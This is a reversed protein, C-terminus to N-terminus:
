LSNYIVFLIAQLIQLIINTNRTVKRVYIISYKISDKMPGKGIWIIKVEETFKFLKWKKLLNSYNERYQRVKWVLSDEHFFHM